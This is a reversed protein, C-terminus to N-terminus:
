RPNERRSPPPELTSPDQAIRRAVAHRAASRRRALRRGQRAARAATAIDIGTVIVWARSCTRWIKPARRQRQRRACASLRRHRRAVCRLPHRRGGAGRLRQGDRPRAYRSFPRVCFRDGAVACRRSSCARAGHASRRLRRHRRPERSRRRCRAAGADAAASGVARRPGPAHLRVRHRRRGRDRAQCGGCRARRSHARGGRGSRGADQAPQRPQARPQGVAAGAAPRRRADIRASRARSIPCSCRCSSGPCRRRTRSCRRRHRGTAAAPRAPVFSGVEIERQGAAYADRIWERKRTPRCSRTSARCAM